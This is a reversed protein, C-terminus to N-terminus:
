FYKRTDKIVSLHTQCVRIKLMCTLLRKLSALKQDTKTKNTNIIFVARSIFSCHFYIM